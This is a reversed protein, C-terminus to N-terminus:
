NILAMSIKPLKAKLSKFEGSPEFMANVLSLQQLMNRTKLSIIKNKILAMSIQLLVAKLPKFKEAIRKCANL